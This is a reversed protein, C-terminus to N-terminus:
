TSLQSKISKLYSERPHFPFVFLNHFCIPFNKINPQRATLEAALNGLASKVSFAPASKIWVWAPHSIMDSDIASIASSNPLVRQLCVMLFFFFRSNSFTDSTWTSCVPHIWYSPRNFAEWYNSLYTWPNEKPPLAPSLVSSQNQHIPVSTVCPGTFWMLHVQLSM